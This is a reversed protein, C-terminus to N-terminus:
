EGDKPIMARINEEITNCTVPDLIIDGGFSCRLLGAGAVQAAEELVVRIAARAEPIFDRWGEEDDYEIDQVIIRAVREVIDNM